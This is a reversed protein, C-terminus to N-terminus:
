FSDLTASKSAGKQNRAKKGKKGRKQKPAPPKKPKPGGKKTVIVQKGPEVRLATMDSRMLRATNECFVSDCRAVMEKSKTGYSVIIKSGESLNLKEFSASDIKAVGTGDISSAVVSLRIESVM